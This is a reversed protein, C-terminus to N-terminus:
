TDDFSATVYTLISSGAPRSPSSARRRVQSGGGADGVDGGEEQAKREHIGLIGEDGEYGGVM